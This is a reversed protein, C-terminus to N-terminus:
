GGTPECIEEYPDPITYCYSESGDENTQYWDLSEETQGPGPEPAFTEAPEGTTSSDEFLDGVEQSKQWLSVLGLLLVLMLIIALVLAVARLVLMWTPDAIRRDDRM